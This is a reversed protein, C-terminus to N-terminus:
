CYTTIPVAVVAIPMTPVLTEPLNDAGLTQISPYVMALEVVTVKDFGSAFVEVPDCNSVVMVDPTPVEVAVSGIRKRAVSPVKTTVHNSIDVEHVKSSITRRKSRM